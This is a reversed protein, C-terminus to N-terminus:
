RLQPLFRSLASISIGGSARWWWTPYHGFPYRVGPFKISETYPIFTDSYGPHEEDHLIGCIGLIDLLEGREANNGRLMTMGKVAQAATTAPPLQRLYDIIQQGLSIDAVNLAPRPARPFQELDFAIYDIDNQRYGGSCFRHWSFDNLDQPPITGDKRVVLACVACGTNYWPTYPHEPLVRAIAYSSLASRLDLRRTALSALFAESVEQANVSAGAHRAAAVWGDHDLARPEAFMIGAGVAVAMREPDPWAPRLLNEAAEFTNRLIQVAVPSPDYRM